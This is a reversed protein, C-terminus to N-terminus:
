KEILYGREIATVAVADLEDLDVSDGPSLQRGDASFTVTTNGPNVLTHKAKPKEEPKVDPEPRVEPASGSTEPDPEPAVPKKRQPPTPM